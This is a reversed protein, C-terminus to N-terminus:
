KLYGKLEDYFNGRTGALLVVVKKDALEHITYALEYNEGEHMVDYGYIGALDGVKM